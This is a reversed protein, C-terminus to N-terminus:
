PDERPIALAMRVEVAGLWRRHRQHRPASVTLGGAELKRVEGLARWFIRAGVRELHDLPELKERARTWTLHAARRNADEIFALIEPDEAIPWPELGFAPALIDDPHPDRRDLREGFAHLLARGKLLIAEAAVRHCEGVPAGPQRLLLAAGLIQLDHILCGLALERQKQTRAPDV